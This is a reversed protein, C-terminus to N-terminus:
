FHKQGKQFLKISHLLKHFANLKYKAELKQTKAELKHILEINAYKIHNSEIKPLLAELKYM